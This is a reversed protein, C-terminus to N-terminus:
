LINYKELKAYFASRSIGLYNIAKSKNNKAKDLAKKILTKELDEIAQNLDLTDLEPKNPGSTRSLQLDNKTIEDTQCIIVAHEITNKLERVNGPWPYDQMFKITDPAIRLNKNYKKSFYNLFHYTLLSIDAIRQRLPPIFIPVVYLRYYLDARFHGQQVMQELNRNTASIIRVNVPIKKNDGLKEIYKEQTFRLLKVQTSSPIDGIEDLFLTGKNAEEFKGTKGTSKAGTFAGPSYGFLESELLTEPIAACNIAVFPYSARNSAKHIGQAILEKGSGTEGRLMVSADTKAVNAAINLCKLMKPDESVISNFFRLNKRDEKHPTKETKRIVLSRLYKNLKYIAGTNGVGIVGQIQGDNDKLPIFSAVIDFGLTENFHEDEQIQKGTKLVYLLKDNPYKESINKNLIKERSIGVQYEYASNVYVVIGEKNIVIIPENIRDLVTLFAENFLKFVKEDINIM